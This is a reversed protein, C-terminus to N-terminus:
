PVPAGGLERRLAAALAALPPCGSPPPAFRGTLGLELQRALEGAAAFGFTGASGALRHAHGIARERQTDGLKGALGDAAADELAAVALLIEGRHRVWIAGLAAAAREAEGASRDTM